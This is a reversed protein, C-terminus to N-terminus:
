LNVVRRMAGFQAQRDAKYIRLLVAARRLVRAELLPKMVPNQMLNVGVTVTLLKVELSWTSDQRKFDEHCSRLM